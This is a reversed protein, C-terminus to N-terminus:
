AASAKSFRVPRGDATKQKEADAFPLKVEAGFEQTIANSGVPISRAYFKGKEFVLVNSTKAGIDLLLSCGDLDPYNYRFANAM